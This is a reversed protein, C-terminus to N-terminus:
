VWRRAICLRCGRGTLKTLATDTFWKGGLAALVRSKQRGQRSYFVPVYDQKCGPLLGRAVLSEIFKTGVLAHYESKKCGFADVLFYPLRKTGDWRLGNLYDQLSDHSNARCLDAVSRVVVNMAFTTKYRGGALRIIRQYHEDTIEEWVGSSKQIESKRTFADYRFIGRRWLGTELFQYLRSIKPEPTSKGRNADLYVANESAANTTTPM